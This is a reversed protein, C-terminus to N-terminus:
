KQLVNDSFETENREVESGTRGVGDGAYCGMEVTRAVRMMKKV